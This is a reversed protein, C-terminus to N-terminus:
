SRWASTASSKRSHSTSGHWRTSGASGRLASAPSLATTTLLSALFFSMRSHSYCRNWSPLTAQHLLRAGFPAFGQEGEHGGKRAAPSLAEWAELDRLLVRELPLLSGGM